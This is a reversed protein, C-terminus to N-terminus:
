DLFCVARRSEPDAVVRAHAGHASSPVDIVKIVAQFSAADPLLSALLNPTNEFFENNFSAEPDDPYV